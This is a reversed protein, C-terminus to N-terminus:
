ESVTLTYTATRVATTTVVVTTRYPFDLYTRTTEVSTRFTTTYISRFISISRLTAPSTTSSPSRTESIDSLVSSMTSTSSRSGSASVRTTTLTSFSSAERTSSAMSESSSVTASASPYSSTSPRMSASERTSAAASIDSSAASSSARVSSSSTAATSRVPSSSAGGATNVNNNSNHKRTGVGVGVGVGVGIAIALILALIIIWKRKKIKKSSAVAKESIAVPAKENATTATKTKGNGTAAVAIPASVARDSAGIPKANGSITSGDAMPVAARTPLEDSSTLVPLTSKSTELGTGPTVVVGGAVPAAVAPITETSARSSYSDAADLYADTEYASQEAGSTSTFFSATSATPSPPGTETDSPYEAVPPAHVTRPTTPPPPMDDRRTAGSSAPTVTSSSVTSSISPTGSVRRPNVHVQTPRTGVLSAATATQVENASEISEARDLFDGEDVDRDSAVSASSSSHRHAM